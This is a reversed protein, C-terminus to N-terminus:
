RTVQALSVTPLRFLLLSPHNPSPPACVIEQLQAIAWFQAQLYLKDFADVLAFQPFM